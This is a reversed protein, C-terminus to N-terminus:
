QEDQKGHGEFYIMKKYKLVKKLIIFKVRLHYSRMHQHADWNRDEDAWFEQRCAEREAMEETIDIIECDSDEM